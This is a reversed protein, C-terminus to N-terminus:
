FNQSYTSIKGVEFGILHRLFSGQSACIDAIAEILCAKEGVVHIPVEIEKTCTHQRFVLIYPVLFHIPVM